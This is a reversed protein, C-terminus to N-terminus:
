SVIIPIVRLPQDKQLTIGFRDEMDLDEAAIGNELKWDFSSILSGLMLPIM